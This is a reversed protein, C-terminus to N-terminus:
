NTSISFDIAQQHQRSTRWLSEVIPCVDRHVFVDCAYTAFTQDCQVFGYGKQPYYAKLFGRFCGPLQDGQYVEALSGNQSSTSNLWETCSLAESEGKRSLSDSEVSHRSSSSNGCSGVYSAAQQEGM